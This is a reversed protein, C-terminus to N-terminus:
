ARLLQLVLAQSQNAQALIASAADRKIQVSVMSATEEAVDVDMIRSYAADTQDRMSQLYRTTHDLRSLQAGVNGQIVSLTENMTSITSLSRTADAQTTLNILGDTVVETTGTGHVYVTGAAHTVLEVVGDGTLDVFTGEVYSGAVTQLSFSGNGNSLFVSSGDSWVDTLGDNNV